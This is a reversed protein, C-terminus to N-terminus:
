NSVENKTCYNVSFFGFNLFDVATFSWISKQSWIPAMTYHNDNSGLKMRSLRFDPEACTWVRSATLRLNAITLIESLPGPQFYLWVGKTPWGYWLFLEDDDEADDDMSGKLIKAVQSESTGAMALSLRKIDRSLGM